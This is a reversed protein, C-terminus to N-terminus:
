NSCALPYDDLPSNHNDLFVILEKNQATFTALTKGSADLLSLQQNDVKYTAAQTLATIYATAQEMIPEPCAMMTTAINQNVSFKSGNVTYSAGYRNCGDTGNIQGAEFSITVQADPIASQGNLSVLLWNTDNLADTSKCGALAWVFVMAVVVPTIRIKM